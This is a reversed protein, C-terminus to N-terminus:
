ARKIKYVKPIAAQAGWFTGQKDGVKYVNVTAYGNHREVYTTPITGDNAPNKYYKQGFIKEAAEQYNKATITNGNFIYKAM